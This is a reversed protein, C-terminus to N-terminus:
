IIFFAFGRLVLYMRIIYLQFTNGCCLVQPDGNRVVECPGFMDVDGCFLCVLSKTEEFSIDPDM